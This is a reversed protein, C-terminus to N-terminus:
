HKNLTFCYLKGNPVGVVVYGHSIATGGWADGAIPAHWLIAGSKLDYATFQNHLAVFLLDGTIAGPSITRLGTCKSWVVAGTDGRLAWLAGACSGDMLTGGAVYVVGDKYAPPQFVAGHNPYENQAITTSWALRVGSATRALGYMVGHKNGAVIYKQGALTYTVAGQGFDCDCDDTDLAKYSWITTGTDWDMAVISDQQYTSVNTTCPNGTTAIIAHDDLDATVSSWVGGGTENPLATYHTWHTTGDDADLAVVSGRVCPHDNKSALGIYVNDHVLLPSSWIYAGQDPEGIKTTWIGQGTQIDVAYVYGNPAGYYALHRTRDVAVSSNVAGLAPKIGTFTWLKAGTRLDYAGLTNGSPIYVIGDVIAPSSEYPIGKNDYTWASHLQDVNSSDIIQEPNVATGLVDYRYQTWDNGPLPPVTASSRPSAFQSPTAVAGVPAPRQSAAFLSVGVAVLVVCFISALTVMWGFRTRSHM